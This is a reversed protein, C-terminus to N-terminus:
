VAIEMEPDEHSTRVSVTVYAGGRAQPTRMRQEAYSLRYGSETGPAGYNRLYCGTIVGRREKEYIAGKQTVGLEYDLDMVLRKHKHGLWILDAKVYQRRTLDIAGRTVESSGGQGHNYWIDVAKERGSTGLYFGMRLFGTYGGHKIPPLKKDRLRNLDRVLFLIPDVSCFRLPATEHNGMAIMDIGNVWPELFKVAYDVADNVAADVHAVDRGATYRKPDGPLILDLIDGLLLIRCGRRKAKDMDRRIREEDCDPNRLHLDSALFFPFERQKSYDFRWTNVEM